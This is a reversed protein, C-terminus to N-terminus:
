GLGGLRHFFGRGDLLDVGGWWALVTLDVHRGIGCGRDHRVGIGHWLCWWCALHVFLIGFGRQGMRGVNAVSLWPLPPLTSPLEFFNSLKRYFLSECLFLDM